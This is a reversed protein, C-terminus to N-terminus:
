KNDTMYFYEYGEKMAKTVIKAYKKATKFYSLHAMIFTKSSKNDSKDYIFGGNKMIKEGAMNNMEDLKINKSVPFGLPDDAYNVTLWFLNNEIVYKYSMMSLKSIQRDTDFLDSYFLAYPSAFNIAGILSNKPACWKVTYDNLSDVKRKYTEIDDEIVFLRSLSYTAIGSKFIADICTNNLNKNLIYEKQAKYEDSIIENLKFSPMKILLYQNTIFSGASYGALVTSNGKAYEKMIESHLKEIVPYMNEPKTIWIADHLCGAIFKRVLNAPKPSKRKLYNFDEEIVEIDERSLDGWYFAYPIENIKQGKLINKQIFSDNTFNKSFEIHLKQVDKIFEEKTKETNTNSGNLYIFSIENYAHCNNITFILLLFTLLFRM